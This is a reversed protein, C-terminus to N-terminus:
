KARLQLGLVELQVLLLGDVKWFVQQEAPLEGSSENAPLVHIYIYVCICVYTYMCIDTYGDQLLHFIVMAPVGIYEEHSPPPNM